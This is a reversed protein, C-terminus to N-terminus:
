LTKLFAILAEKDANSLESGFYHGRNVVLDRCKNVGLLADVDAPNSLDLLPQGDKMRTLLTVVLDRVRREHADREEPNTTEPRLIVNSLLGIPTGAQIRQLRIADADVIQPFAQAAVDLAAELAPPLFGRTATISASRARDQERLRDGVRDILSGGITWGSRKLEEQRRAEVAARVRPNSDADRTEPWLMQRISADFSKLRAEVSPDASFPGVTNNLLFPATSWLSALSPPRTYGRGGAPMTYRTPEGTVPHYWTIEGVSQLDKYYQSSFNDWINGAIANTALPSCANTDLLTVPVRLESSLYNGELFAGADATKRMEAKFAETGTWNFYADFCNKYEGAECTSPHRVDAPPPPV